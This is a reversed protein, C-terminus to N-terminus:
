GPSVNLRKHYKINAVSAGSIRGVCSPGQLASIHATSKRWEVDLHDLSSWGNM